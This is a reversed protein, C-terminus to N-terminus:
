SSSKGVEKWNWGGLSRVAHVSCFPQLDRNGIQLFHITQKEMPVISFCVM